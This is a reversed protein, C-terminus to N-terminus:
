RCSPGATARLAPFITAFPPPRRPFRRAAPAHNGGPWRLPRWASPRPRTATLRLAPKARQCNPREPPHPVQWISRRPLDKGATRLRLRRGSKEATCHSAFGNLGSAAGTRFMLCRPRDISNTCREFGSRSGTDHWNIWRRIAVSNVPTQTHTPWRTTAPSQDSNGPEKPAAPGERGASAAQKAAGRTQPWNQATVAQRNEVRM